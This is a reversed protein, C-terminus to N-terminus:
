EREAGSENTNNERANHIGLYVFLCLLAAAMAFWQVAYGLHKEPAMSVVPWDAQLAAPGPELRLEYALGSRQLHNWTRTPDVQTILRPWAADLREPQLRLPEGLPVYVWAYLSVDREPTSFTPRVRRDPWPQWGRNVLLWRGSPEDYFPQLLEIGVQGNRTRNDLLLSHEADFRGQIHVRRYALDSEGLAAIEVPAAERRLDFLTTLERKEDARSLQWVGLWVLCPFLLLVVLSPLWGPRFRRM